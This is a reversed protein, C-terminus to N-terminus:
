ETCVIVAINCGCPDRVMEALIIGDGKGKDDDIQARRYSRSQRDAFAGGEGQLNLFVAM